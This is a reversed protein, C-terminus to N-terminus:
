FIDKFEKLPNYSTKLHIQDGPTKAPHYWVYARSGEDLRIRKCYYGRDRLARTLSRQSVEGDNFDPAYNSLAGLAGETDFVRPAEEELWGTLADVGPGLSAQVMQTKTETVPARRFEADNVPLTKLYHFLEAINAPDEKWTKLADIKSDPLPNEAGKMAYIRRENVDDIPLADINNSFLLFNAYVIGTYSDFGKQQINASTDTLLSKMREWFQYKRDGSAAKIEQVVAILCKDLFGNFRGEIDDRSVDHTNHGGVVLRLVEFLLGRGTGTVPTINIPTVFSRVFPRQVIRALWQLFWARETKVPFIHELLGIFPGISEAGSTEKHPPFYFTNIYLSDDDLAGPRRCFRKGGPHYVYGAFHRTNKSAKWVDVLPEVRIDGNLDLSKYIYGANHEKFARLTRRPSRHLPLGADHVETGDPLEVLAFRKEWDSLKKSKLRLTPDTVSKKETVANYM